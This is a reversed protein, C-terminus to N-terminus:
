RDRDLGERFADLRKECEKDDRKVVLRICHISGIVSGVGAIFAVLADWTV